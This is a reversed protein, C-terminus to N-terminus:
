HIKDEEINLILRDCVKSAILTSAESMAKKASDYTGYVKGNPMKLKFNKGVYEYHVRCEPEHDCRIILERNSFRSLIQQRTFNESNGPKIIITDALISHSFLFGILFTAILRM